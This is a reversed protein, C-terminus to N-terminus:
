ATGFTLARGARLIADAETTYRGDHEHLVLGPLLILPTRKGRHLQVLVRSAPTATRPWLPFVSVGREPLADLAQNLRDARLITTFAGNPATRRAGVDLWRSLDGADQLARARSKDPSTEGEQQHFPPNCLVHDFQVCLQRPLNLVDGQVFRVREAMGNAAANQSSLAVLEGDLEVGVLVCDPIRAALCLSAVGAGSGLELVREGAQAPVAAALMVADLGSRFGQAFQCVQVRGGLFGDQTIETVGV